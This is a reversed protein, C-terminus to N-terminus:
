EPGKDENNDEEPTSETDLLIINLPTGKRDQWKVKRKKRKNKWTRWKIMQEDTRKASLQKRREEEILGAVIHPGGFEDAWKYFQYILIRKKKPFLDYKNRHIGKNHLVHWLYVNSMGKDPVGTLLDPTPTYTSVGNVAEIFGRMTIGMFHCLRWLTDVQPINKKLISTMNYNKRNEFYIRNIDSIIGMEIFLDVARVWFQNSMLRHQYYAPPKAPPATLTNGLARFDPPM